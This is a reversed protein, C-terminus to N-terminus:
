QIKHANSLALFQISANGISNILTGTNNPLTLTVTGAFDAHAPAKLAAYHQNSSECYLRVESQSGTNKLDLVGGGIELDQSMTVDSNVFNVTSNGGNINLYTKETSNSIANFFVKADEEGVDADRIETFIRAYTIKDNNTNEGSFLLEGIKDSTTPSSSNRHLDITPNETNGGDTSTLTLDGTFTPDATSGSGTITKISNDTHKTFLKGDATNVALEGVALDSATPTDSATSSRKLQLTNAM